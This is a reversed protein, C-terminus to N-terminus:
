FSAATLSLPIMPHCLLDRTKLQAEIQLIHKATRGHGGARDDLCVPTGGDEHLSSQLDQIIFHNDGEVLLM